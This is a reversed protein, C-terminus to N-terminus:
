VIPKTIVPNTFSRLFFFGQIVNLLRSRNNDINKFDILGM